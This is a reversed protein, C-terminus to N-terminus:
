WRWHTKARGPSRTKSKPRGASSTMGSSGQVALRTLKVASDMQTLDGICLEECGKFTM